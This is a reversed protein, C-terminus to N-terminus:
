KHFLGPFLALKLWMCYLLLVLLYRRKLTGGGAGNVGGGEGGVCVGNSGGQCWCM